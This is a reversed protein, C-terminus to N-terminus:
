PTRPLIYRSTTRAESRATAQERSSGRTRRRSVQWVPRITTTLICHLPPPLTRPILKCHTFALQDRAVTCKIVGAVAKASPYTCQATCQECVEDNCTMNRATINARCEAEGVSGDELVLDRFMRSQCYYRDPRLWEQRFHLLPNLESAIARTNTTPM